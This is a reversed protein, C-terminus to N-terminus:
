DIMEKYQDILKEYARDYFEQFTKISEQKNQKWYVYMVARLRQSPTKGGMDANVTISDEPKEDELAISVLINKNQLNFFETKEENTLEPTTMRLGLSGDVKASLSTIIARTTIQKM